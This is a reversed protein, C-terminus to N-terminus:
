TEPPLEGERLISKTTVDWTYTSTAQGSATLEGRQQWRYEANLSYKSLRSVQVDVGLGRDADTGVFDGYHFFLIPTPAPGVSGVTPLLAWSLPMCADFTAAALTIAREVDWRGADGGRAEIAAVASTVAPRATHEVCSTTATRQLSPNAALIADVASQEYSSASNEILVIWMDGVFSHSIGITGRMDGTQIAQTFVTAPGRTSETFDSTRLDAILPAMASQPLEATLQYLYVSDLYIVWNCNREQTVSKVATLASPSAFENFLARDTEGFQATIRERGYSTLFKTQEAQAAPNVADCAPIVAPASGSGGGSLAEPTAEATPTPPPSAPVCATLATAGALMVAALVAATAAKVRTLRMDSGWGGAPAQRM